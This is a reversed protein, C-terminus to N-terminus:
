PASHPPPLIRVITPTRLLEFLGLGARVVTRSTEIIIVNADRLSM